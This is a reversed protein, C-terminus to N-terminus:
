MVFKNPKPEKKAKRRKPIEFILLVCCNENSKVRAFNFRLIRVGFYLDFECFIM